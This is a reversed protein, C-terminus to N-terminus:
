YNKCLISNPYRECLKERNPPKVGKATHSREWERRRASPPNTNIIPAMRTDRLRRITPMFNELGHPHLLPNVIYQAEEKRSYKEPMVVVREKEKDTDRFWSVLDRRTRYLVSEPHADPIKGLLDKVKFPGMDINPKYHSPAANFGVGKVNRERSIYFAISSGLSHGTTIHRKNPYKAKMKDFNGLEHTFRDGTITPQGEPVAGVFGLGRSTIIKSSTHTAGIIAQAILSLGESVFTSVGHM